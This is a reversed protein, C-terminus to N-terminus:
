WGNWVSKWFLDYKERREYFVEKELRSFLRTLVGAQPRCLTRQEKGPGARAEPMFPKM